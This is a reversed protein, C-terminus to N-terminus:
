IPYDFLIDVKINYLFARWLLTDRDKCFALNRSKTISMGTDSNIFTPHVHWTTRLKLVVILETWKEVGSNNQFTSRTFKRYLKHTHGGKGSTSFKPFEHLYIMFTSEAAHWKTIYGM